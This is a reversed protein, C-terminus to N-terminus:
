GDRPQPIVDQHAEYPPRVGDGLPESLLPDMSGGVAEEFAAVLLDPAHLLVGVTEHQVDAVVLVERPDRWVVEFPPSLVTHSTKVSSSSAQWDNAQKHGQLYNLLLLSHDGLDLARNKKEKRGALMYTYFLKVWTFGDESSLPQSRQEM